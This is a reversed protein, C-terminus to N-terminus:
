IKMVVVSTCHWHGQIHHFCKTISQSLNKKLYNSQTWEYFLTITNCDLIPEQGQVYAWQIKDKIELLQVLPFAARSFYPWAKWETVPKTSVSCSLLMTSSELVALCVKLWMTIKNKQLDTLALLVKLHSINRKQLHLVPM